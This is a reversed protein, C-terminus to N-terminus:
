KESGTQAVRWVSHAKHPLVARDATVRWQRCNTETISGHKSSQVEYQRGSFQHLSLEMEGAAERSM